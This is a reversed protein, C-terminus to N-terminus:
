KDPIPDPDPIDEESEPTKGKKEVVKEAEARSLSKSWRGLKEKVKHHLTGEPYTGDEQLEGPNEGTLLRLGEDVSEIAYIHFDGAAVAEIVEDKLMLNDVNQQPIIVGQDGTLGRMKCVQYFGEIKENVGGVPQLQGKQNVSGTVAINQALPMEALSSLLAFLETSSASDGDVHSYSQEFTLSASMTLPSHQAYKRGLYGSIIMVGKDHIKGSLDSERDINVVGRKGMFTEATIRSPRGFRFDGLDYVSLGNIQGVRSGETDVLLKGREILERIKEAVRNSRYTKEEIAKEVHEETTIEADEMSAWACAEYVIEVVKNFCASLKTQDETLRSSYEIVKGVASKDFHLLEEEECLSSIFSAFKSMHQQSRDMELGFDAKIKFLKRFDQDLQYLLHYIRPQGILIVKIDLPIATPSLSATVVLRYQEGLNEIQAEGNRLARKLADWTFVNRLVDEAQMILYGGNARHIAGPKIMTFDTVLNGYEGEYEVKGFVNYYTPNSEFVVPAGERESNDVFLNVEYRTLDDRQQRQPIPFPMKKNDDGDKFRGLNKVVDEKVQELYSTIEEFEGYKEVLRQFLPDIAFLAVEKELERIKEQAKKELSKVKRITDSIQSQVEERNEEYEEREEEPLEEYEEQSLTKGEKLPITVFGASTRKLAFGKERAEEELQSFLDNIQGQFRRVIANRQDEFDEGEFAQPIENKLDNLLEAMDGQLQAGMGPPLKLALPQDPDEFNYVYCWDSPTEREKAMREAITEAYTSKGTGPHGAMFINYGPSDIHLGFEMAKVARQQGIIGELDAVEETTAFEFSSYDCKNRLDETKVEYNKTMM